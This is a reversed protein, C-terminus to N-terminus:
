SSHRKDIPLEEQVRGGQPPPNPHPLSTSLVKLESLIRQLVGQTNGLVENNWCRLVLFGQSRLWDDRRTDYGRQEDHQGGDVEIVLRPDFCAFDAIYPGIPVQRRFRVGLQENRLSSWLRREADTLNKRLGRAKDRLDSMDGGGM